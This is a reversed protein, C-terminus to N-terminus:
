RVRGLVADTALSQAQLMASGLVDPGANRLDISVNTQTDITRGSAANAVASGIATGALHTIDLDAGRLEVTRVAGQAGITVTGADTMAGTDARVLGAQIPGVGSGVQVTPAATVIQVGSRGDYRVQVGANGSAAARDAPVVSGARPVYVATQPAGQDVRFVSRLVVAGDVATQTDVTLAVDIGNPLSFGGRQVALRDDALPAGCTAVGAIVFCLLGM